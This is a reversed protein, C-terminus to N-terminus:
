KQSFNWFHTLVTCKLKSVTIFGKVGGGEGSGGGGNAALWCAVFCCAFVM